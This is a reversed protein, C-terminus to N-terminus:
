VPEGYRECASGHASSYIQQSLGCPADLECECGCECPCSSAWDDGARVGSLVDVGGM